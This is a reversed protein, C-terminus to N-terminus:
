IKYRWDLGCSIFMFISAFIMLIPSAGISFYSYAAQCGNAAWSVFSIFLCIACTLYIYKHYRLLWPSSSCFIHAFIPILGILLGIIGFGLWANGASEFKSCDSNYSTCSSYPTSFAVNGYGVEDCTGDDQDWHCTGTCGNYTGTALEDDVLAIFAFFISLCAMMVHYKKYFPRRLPQPQPQPQPRPLPQPQLQTPYIITTTTPLSPQQQGGQFVISNHQSQGHQIVQPQSYQSSNQNPIYIQSPAPGQGQQSYMSQQSNYPQQQVYPQQVYPQQMYPQQGDIYIMPIQQLQPQQVQQQQNMGDFAKDFLKDVSKSIVDDIVDDVVREVLKNGDMVVINNLLFFAL